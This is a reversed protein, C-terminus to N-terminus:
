EGAAPASLDALTFLVIAPLLSVSGLALGLIAVLGLLVDAGVRRRRPYDKTAVREIALLATWGAVFAVGYWLGSDAAVLLVYTLSAALVARAAARLFRATM